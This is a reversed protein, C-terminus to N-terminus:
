GSSGYEIPVNIVQVKAWAAAALRWVTLVSRSVALADYGGDAELALTATGKPVPPLAQWSGGAGAVAVAQGGGLLVWVAGDPGFGSGVIGGAAPVPASVTWRTEDRWAALLDTGALLLAADGSSTRTLGLVQVQNGGLGAPLPPGAAQWTGGNDAFVGAVGRRQCSGAAMPIDNQGFSVANVAM